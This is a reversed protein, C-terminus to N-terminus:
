GLISRAEQLDQTDHGETFWGYVGALLDHAAGREGAMQGLRALSLAARLELSRAGRERAIKLACQFCQEAQKVQANRRASRATKKKGKAQALLLEGKLRWLEPEYFCDLTTHTLHLGEEVATLGESLSGLRLGGGALLALLLPKALKMGSSDLLAIAARVDEVGAAPKGLDMQAWGRLATTLGRWMPFEHEAALALGQDALHFAETANGCLLEVFAIHWHAGALGFPLAAEQALSLAKRYSHRASDPYGLFWLAWGRHAYAVMIPDSGYLRGNSTGSTTQWGAIAAQLTDRAEQYKGEYVATQGRTTAARLRQQPSGLREAVEVLREATERATDKEARMAQSYWLAYLAEYLEPLSGNQECLVRIRESSERVEDSAYGYVLNLAATLPVRLEIEHQCRQKVDHLHETMRLAAELCGIAERPAFRQQAEAAAAAFYTIARAPDGGREFHAALRFANQAAGDGHARELAEGIRQHLRRRREVPTEEYIVHRYLAHIFTYQRATREGAMAVIEAVRLFRYTRVLQECASEAADPAADIAQAIEGATFTGGSVGAAELLSRDAPGMAHFQFRIMERLNDPVELRLTELPVALAWGPDTAVLWGRTILQDIVAVMFLPNGDTHEHIIGALAKPFEARPFRRTLYAEVDARTLYELAIEACQRRLQLTHKARLLPHEQLSAEAPRYTGIVLLRAPESRQALMLLLEVTSPDSWHLDELVLILTATASFEELFVALERLMREPRVDILSQRLAVADAPELLWPMQALWAPATRRLLPVVRQPDASRALRGLADLVPLYPERAGAQEIAQGRAVLVQSAAPAQALAQALAALFSQIITTKGIGAEGTVFVVQRQGRQAKGLLEDLRHLETARGVFPATILSWHDTILPSGPDGIVSLQDSIVSLQSTVAAVFRFGRHHVTEIFRPTTTDDQLARRLQRISQTLSNEGVATDAWVTDLLEDKTVLAGAREALHRLVAFAKPQLPVTQSGRLLREARLDLCFPAFVIVGQPGTDAARM